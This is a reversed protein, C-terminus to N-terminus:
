YLIEHEKSNGYECISLIGELHSVLKTEFLPSHINPEIRIKPM